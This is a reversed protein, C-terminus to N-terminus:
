TQQAQCFTSVLKFYLSLNQSVGYTCCIIILCWGEEKLQKIKSAEEASLDGEKVVVVQPLEDDHDDSDEDEFSM